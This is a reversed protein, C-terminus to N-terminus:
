EVYKLFGGSRYGFGQPLGASSSPLRSFDIYDFKAVGLMVPSRSQYIRINGLKFTGVGDPVIRVLTTGPGSLSFPFRFFGFSDPLEIGRSFSTNSGSFLQVRVKSASGTTGKAMEFEIYCNTNPTPQVAIAARVESNVADLSYEAAEALGSSDPINGVKTANVLSFNQARTTLLEVYGTRRLSLAPTSNPRGPLGELVHAPDTSYSNSSRNTNKVPGSTANAESPNNGFVVGAVYSDVMNTPDAYELIYSPPSGLLKIKDIISNRIRPSASYVLPRNVGGAGNAIGSQLDLEYIGPSDIADFDPLTDGNLTGAVEKQILVRYDTAGLNENGFKNDFSTFILVRSNDPCTLWVASRQTGSSFQLFDNFKASVRGSNRLKLHVKNNIFANYDIDSCDSNGGLAVGITTITNGGKFTCRRIKWYPNDFANHSIACRTYGNFYCNSIDKALGVLNGTNTSRVIGYGGNFTIGTLTIANFASTSDVFYSTPGLNIITKEMGAGRFVWNSGPGVGTGNYNFTYPGYHVPRGTANAADIAPTWDWTSPAGTKVPILYAYEYPDIPMRSLVEAVNSAASLTFLRTHGLLTSGIASALEQRLSIDGINIAQQVTGTSGDQMIAGVRSAGASTMLLQGDVNNVVWGASKYLYELQDTTNLYRDALQLPTGDARTTPATARAGLFSATENLAQLLDACQIRITTDRAGKKIRLDYVGNPAGFQVKGVSSSQFPNALPSGDISVLGSVLNTTGPAYLYCDASPMINGQADQAFYSMIEM